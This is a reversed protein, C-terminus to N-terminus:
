EAATADGSNDAVALYEIETYDEVETCGRNKFVCYKLKQSMGIITRHLSM